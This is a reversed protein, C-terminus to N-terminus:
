REKTAIVIQYIATVNRMINGLILCKEFDQDSSTRVSLFTMVFLAGGFQIERRTKQKGSIKDM